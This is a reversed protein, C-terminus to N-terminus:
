FMHCHKSTNLNEIKERSTQLQFYVDEIYQKTNALIKDLGPTSKIDFTDYLQKLSSLYKEAMLYTFYQIIEYRTLVINPESYHIHFVHTRAIM